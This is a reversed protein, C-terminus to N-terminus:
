NKEWIGNRQIEILFVFRPMVRMWFSVKILLDGYDTITGKHIRKAFYMQEKKMPERGATNRIVQNVRQQWPITQKRRLWGLVHRYTHNTLAVSSGTPFNQDLSQFTYSNASVVISIHGHEGIGPGWIIIDGPQPKQFPTYPDYPIRDFADKNYTHWVDKASNVSPSQAVGFVEDVYIRYLDMCQGGYGMAHKVRKGEHRNIFDQLM